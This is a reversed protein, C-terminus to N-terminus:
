AKKRITMTIENGQDNHRVDDFFAHILWLGRGCPRDLYTPDTPNPISKPDFGPGEDRITFEASDPTVCVRVHTRRDKYPAEQRRQRVLAQFASLDDEERLKSSVELNGHIFANQLAEELAMAVRLAGNADRLSFRELMRLVQAVLPGVLERSNTLSFRVESLTACAALKTSARDAQVVDLLRQVTPILDHMFQKPVYSAAGKRLAEAAIEESGVATALVIPIKPFEAHVADVLELGNMEPMELDTIVVDPQTQRILELAERGNVAMVAVHGAKELLRQIQAAQTRSDEAVLVTTQTDM